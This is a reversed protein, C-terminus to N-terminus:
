AGNVGLLGFVQGPPIGLSLGNVAKKGNDYVKTLKDVVIIDNNAGGTAVREEETLVDSDEELETTIDREPSRPCSCTLFNTFKKWSSVISPNTSWIDIQIALLLYVISEWALFIVDYLLVEPAWM